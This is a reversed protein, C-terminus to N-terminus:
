NLSVNILDSLESSSAMGTRLSRCPKQELLFLDALSNLYMEVQETTLQVLYTKKFYDRARDILEQSFHFM